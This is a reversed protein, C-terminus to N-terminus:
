SLKAMVGELYDEVVKDSQSFQVLGPISIFVGFLFNALSDIDEDPSVDGAERANILAKRILGTVMQRYKQVQFAVMQDEAALEVATNCMMCGLGRLEGFMNDKTLEIAEKIEVLGADPRTLPQLNSMQVLTQYRDLAALFLERKNKFTAYIGYRQVGTADVLDSMSTDFYGKQWFLHMARDLLKGPEFEKPRAMILRSGFLLSLRHITM